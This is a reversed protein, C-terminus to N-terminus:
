SRNTRVVDFKMGNVLEVSQGQAVTGHRDGPGTHHIDYLYQDANPDDPYAIEVLQKYNITPGAVDRPRGNVIIHVAHPKPDADPQPM